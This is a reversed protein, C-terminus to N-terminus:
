SSDEQSDVLRLVDLSKNTLFEGFLDGTNLFRGKEGVNGNVPNVSTIRSGEEAVELQLVERNFSFTDHFGIDLVRSVSTDLNSSRCLDVESASEFGSLDIKDKCSHELSGFAVHQDLNLWWWAISNPDGKLAHRFHFHIDLRDNTRSLDSICYDKALNLVTDLFDDRLSNYQWEPVIHGEKLCLVLFPSTTDKFSVIGCNWSIIGFTNYCCCAVNSSDTM